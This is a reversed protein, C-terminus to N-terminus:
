PQLWNSMITRGAGRDALASRPNSYIALRFRSPCSNVRAAVAASYPPKLRQPDSPNKRAVKPVVSTTGKGTTGEEVLFAKLHLDAIPRTGEGRHDPRGGRRATAARRGFALPNRGSRSFCQSGTWFSGSRREVLCLGRQHDDPQVASRVQHRAQNKGRNRRPQEQNGTAQVGAM